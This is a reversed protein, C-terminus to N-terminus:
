LYMYYLREHCCSKDIYANCGALGKREPRYFLFPSSISNSISVVNRKNNRKDIKQIYGTQREDGRTNIKKRLRNKM